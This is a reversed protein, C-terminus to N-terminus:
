NAGISGVRLNGARVCQRVYAPNTTLSKCSAARIAATRGYLSSAYGIGYYCKGRYRADTTRCLSAASKANGFNGVMAGAAGLICWGKGGYAEADSCFADIREPNYHAQTASDRGLSNFCASVWQREVRSCTAAAKPWSAGNVRLIHSTVLQYCTLKDEAKVWDCPYVPDEARIWQSQVGFFNAVNEMFVGGNCSTEEWSTGLRDCVKLSRPLDYGTTIMLGHGLGHLCQYLLTLTRRVEPGECLHRVVAGLTAPDYSKVQLLSRELVGHYYGSFCSASGEAFTKSVNGHNRALSASGIVHAVRHCSPDSFDGYRKDFLRLAVKPGRYFAINGFAQEYCTPTSCDSLQTRDPKFNGAVPHMPAAVPKSTSGDSNMAFVAVAITAEVMATLLLVLVVVRRRTLRARM